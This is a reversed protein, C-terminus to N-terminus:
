FPDSGKEIIKIPIGLEQLMALASIFWEKKILYENNAAISKLFSTANYSNKNKCNSNITHNISSMFYEFDYTIFDDNSTEIILTEFENRKKVILNDAMNNHWLEIFYLMCWYEKKNDTVEFILINKYFLKYSILEGYKRDTIKLGCSTELSFISESKLDKPILLMKSNLKESLISNELDDIYKIKCNREVFYDSHYLSWQNNMKLALYLEMGMDKAFKIKKAFSTKSFKFREKQTSKVEVMIKEDNKFHIIYDSQNSETLCSTTEDLSVIHKCYNLFYLILVFEDEIRLGPLRNKLDTNELDLKRILLNKTEEDLFSEVQYFAKLREIDNSM